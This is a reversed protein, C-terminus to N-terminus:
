NDPDMPRTWEHYVEQSIRWLVLGVGLIVMPGGNRTCDFSILGGIIFAMGIFYKIDQKTPRLSKLKKM